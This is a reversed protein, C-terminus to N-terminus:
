GVLWKGLECGQDGSVATVSLSHDPKSIYKALKAKWQVHASIASDFDM